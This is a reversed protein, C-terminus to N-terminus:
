PVDRAAPMPQELWALNFRYHLGSSLLHIMGDPTQTEALYGGIEAHNDDLYCNEFWGFCRVTRPPGGPTILKKVPWTLGDDYSLAAFMGYVKRERGAADRVTIGQPTLPEACARVAAEYKPVAESGLLNALLGRLHHEDRIIERRLPRLRELADLPLGEGRLCEWRGEPLVLGRRARLEERDATPNGFANVPDTFSVLLLPGERLRILALRQAGRIPPFESASYTWTRGGDRSISQALKGRIPDGRGFALLSGDKREVVRAHIGAIWAGSKGEEFEPRPQGAGLDTWTAGNDRSVYVASGGDQGADADCLQMLTGHRLRIMGHIAQNRPGHEPNALVPRSWTAGSDTSTRMVLALKGWHQAEDLGHLFLLRGKGDHFLSCGTVNRDPVYVFISAPDWEKSGARLRTAMIVMHRSREQNTSFFAALLDGNPLWTITPQHNHWGMFGSLAPRVFPIPEHFVPAPLEAPRPWAYQRQSVRQMFLPLLRQPSPRSAPLPAEVVRFGILASRDEPLTALRNASRLFPRTTNHSGGRTVRYLGDAPGVPDVQASRDYPGYWDLTWEEVNGHMDSLGWANPEHQAVALSVPAYVFGFRLAQRRIMEAPLSAGYHFPSQTGARCAYEWEAETPLRYNRGEKKSLWQCFAMADFWNVFVVAEDDGSSFGRKGRLRRHEPDFLEYQANTVETASMWFPHSIRVRRVPEEDWDWHTATRLWNEASKRDLPKVKDWGAARPQGMLFDGAPIRVMRMGISNVRVEASAALAAVSLLMFATRMGALIPAGAIGPCASTAANIETGSIHLDVGDSM